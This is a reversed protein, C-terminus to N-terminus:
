KTHIKMNLIISMSIFLISASYLGGSFNSVILTFIFILSMYSASSKIKLLLLSKRITTYILYIFPLFGIIGTTVLVELFINHPKYGRFDSELSNGFIPNNVFQYFSTKWIEVRIASSSGSDYDSQIALVRDFLNSGLYSSVSLSFFLILAIFLVINIKNGSSNMIILIFVTFLLAILAGRSSGLFFPVSCILLIGINYLIRIIKNNKSTLLQLTTLLIGYSGISALSLPSIYNEDDRGIVSSIRGINEAFLDKFYLVVLLSFFICSVKIAKEILLIKDVNFNINILFLFPIFVFSLFYLLFNSTNIHYINGTFIMEYIIRILYASSFMLFLQLSKTIKIKKKEFWLILIFILILLRSLKNFTSSSFILSNQTSLLHVSYYGGFLLFFLIQIIRNSISEKSVM